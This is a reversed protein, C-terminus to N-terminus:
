ATCGGCRGADGVRLQRQRGAPATSITAVSAVDRDNKIGIVAIMEARKAIARHADYQLGDTSTATHDGRARRTGGALQGDASAAIVAAVASVDCDLIVAPGGNGGSTFVCVAQDKLRNATAATDGH